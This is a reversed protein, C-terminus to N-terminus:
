EHDIHKEAELAYVAVFNFEFSKYINVEITCVFVQDVMIDLLEKRSFTINKEEIRDKPQVQELM